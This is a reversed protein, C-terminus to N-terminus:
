EKAHMFMYNFNLLFLERFVDQSKLYDTFLGLQIFFKFLVKQM